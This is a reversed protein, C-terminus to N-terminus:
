RVLEGRPAPTLPVTVVLRTGQGPASRVTLSGGRDAVLGGLSRLGLHGAAQSDALESVEFGCGDDDIIMTAQEEDHEVVIEVAEARSHAAANRLSEQACRYLLEAVPEPLEHMRPCRVSVAMSGGDLVGLASGLEAQPLRTPAGDSLLARLDGVVRRLGDGSRALVVGPPDARPSGLRAADLEYAVGALAPIVYDHVESVLRRREGDAAEAAAQALADDSPRPHTRRRALCYALPAQVLLLFLLGATTVAAGNAWAPRLAAVLAADDVVDVVDPTGSTDRVGVAVAMSGAAAGPAQDVPVAAGTRLATREGATLSPATGITARDESWVIGGDAARVTIRSVVGAAALRDVAQGVANQAEPDQGALAPTLLPALATGTAVSATHQISRTVV